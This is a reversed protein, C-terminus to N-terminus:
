TKPAPRVSDIVGNILSVLFEGAAVVQAYAAQTFAGSYFFADVFLVIIVVVLLVTRLQGEGRNGAAASCVVM